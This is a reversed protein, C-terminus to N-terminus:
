EAAFVPAAEDVRHGLSMTSVLRLRPLNAVKPTAPEARVVGRAPRHSMVNTALEYLQASGAKLGEPVLLTFGDFSVFLCKEGLKGCLQSTKLLFRMVRKGDKKFAIEYRKQYERVTKGTAPDLWHGYAKELETLGTSFAEGSEDPRLCFDVLEQHASDAQDFIRVGMGPWVDDVMRSLAFRLQGWSGGHCKPWPLGIIAVGTLVETTVTPEPAEDVSFRHCLEQRVAPQMAWRINDM